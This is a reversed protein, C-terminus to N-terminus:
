EEWVLTESGSMRDALPRGSRVLLWPLGLTVLTLWAALWRLTTQTFALQREGDAARLGSAAMGPTQGWFALPLSTYLFSFCAAFGLYGPWQELDPVLGLQWAALACVAVVAVHIALDALAAKVWLAPFRDLLVDGDDEASDLGPGDDVGDDHGAGPQPSAPGEPLAGAGAPPAINEAEQAHQLEPLADAEGSREQAAPGDREPFGRSEQILPIADLGSPEHTESGSPREESAPDGFEADLSAQEPPKRGETM